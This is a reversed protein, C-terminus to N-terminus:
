EYIETIFRSLSSRMNNNTEMRIYGVNDFKSERQGHYDGTVRNILDRFGDERKKVSYRQKSDGAIVVRSGEGCREVLLKITNPSMTQAEDIIVLSNYFTSGLLYNPINLIIKRNKIDSDLKGPSMFDTFIGKMSTFHPELKNEAEGPLSGIIDDGVETPNKILVISDYYGASLEQLAKWIITSSKGCGSPADVLSLDREEMSQVIMPQKGAPKFWSLNYEERKRANDEIIQAEGRLARTEHDRQQLKSLKKDGGRRNNRSANKSM